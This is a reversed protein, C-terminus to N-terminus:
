TKIESCPTLPFGCNAPTPGTMDGTRKCAGLVAEEPRLKVERIEPRFYFRKRTGTEQNQRGTTMKGGWDECFTPDQESNLALKTGRRWSQESM